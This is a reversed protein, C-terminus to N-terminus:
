RGSDGRVGPLPVDPVDTMRADYGTVPDVTRGAAWWNERATEVAMLMVDEAPVGARLRLNDVIARFLEAKQEAGRGTRADGGGCRGQQGDDRGTHAEHVDRADRLFYPADVQHRQRVPACRRGRCQHVGQAPPGRGQGASASGPAVGGPCGAHEAGPM